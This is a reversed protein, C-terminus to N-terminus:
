GLRREHGRARGDDVREGLLAGHQLVHQAGRHAERGVCAHVGGDVGRQGPLVSPGPVAPAPLPPPTHASARTHQTGCRSDQNALTLLCGGVESASQSTAIKKEHRRRSYPVSAATSQASIHLKALESASKRAKSAGMKKERRCRSVTSLKARGLGQKAGVLTPEIVCKPSGPRSHM